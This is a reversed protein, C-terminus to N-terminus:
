NLTRTPTGLLPLALTLMESPLRKPAGGSVTVTVFELAETASSSRPPSPECDCVAPFTLSCKDTAILSTTLASVCDQEGANNPEGNATDWPLYTADAGKVTKYAGETVQDNIGVWTRAAAAATTIAQLEAVNDPIALYAGDAACRDRQPEVM